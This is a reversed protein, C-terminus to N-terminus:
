VAFLDLHEGAVGVRLKCVVDAGLKVLVEAAGGYGLKRVALARNRHKLRHAALINKDNLGGATGYVVVEHFQKDHDVCHAAGGRSADGGNYRVEAVRTLIALGLAAVGNGCLENCVKDGGGTSVSDERHVQVRSLNLAEEVNGDVVEHARM